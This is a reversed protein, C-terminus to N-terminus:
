DSRALRYRALLGFHDSGLRARREVAGEGGTVLILDIPVRLVGGFQVLTVPRPALLAVQGAQAIEGIPEGWPVMNFDGSIVKPGDLKALEPVLRELQAAQSRPWPWFLHVSVVWFPGEPGAVQIAAARSADLCIGESLAEFRSLVVTGGFAKSLCKHQTPYTANLASLDELHAQSVEQLSVSDAQAELIDNVILSLGQTNFLVNKQYHSLITSKQAQAIPAHGPRMQGSSAWIALGLLAWIAGRWRAGSVVCLVAAGGLVGAAYLRFVSLSVLAPHWAGLFGLGAVLLALGGAFKCFRVVRNKM